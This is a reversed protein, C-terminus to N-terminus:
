RSNAILKNASPKRALLSGAVVAVLSQAGTALAMRIASDYWFGQPVMMILRDKNPDLMWFDNDLSTGWLLHFNLFLQDFDFMSAVGFAGFLGLTLGGGWRLKQGLSRWYGERIWLRSGLLYLLAYGAAILQLNYFGAMLNQTDRMHVLERENFLPELVGRVHVPINIDQRQLLLYSSIEDAARNLEEIPVGTRASVGYKVYGARQWGSDAVLWRLSLTCFLVPLSVIFLGSALGKLIGSLRM